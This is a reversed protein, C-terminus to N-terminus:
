GSMEDWLDRWDPNTEQILRVKRARTGHKLDIERAIAATIDEHAEYWVLTTLGYRKTFGPLAGSRHQAVRRVLDSTVGVYLVGNPRNTMLYVFSFRMPRPNAPVPEWALDPSEAHACERSDHGDEAM